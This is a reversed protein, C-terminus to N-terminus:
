VQAVEWTGARLVRSLRHARQGVQLAWRSDLMESAALDYDQDKLASFFKNFGRLRSYGLNYMMETVVEMRVTDLTVSVQQLLRQTMYAATSYDELLWEEAQEPTVKLEQLNRGYGVTWIGVSDQYAKLRLGESIKLHDIADM